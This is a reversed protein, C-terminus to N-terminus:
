LEKKLIFIKNCTYYFTDHVKRRSYIKDTLSINKYQLKRTKCFIFCNLILFIILLLASVMIASIKLSIPYDFVNVNTYTGLVEKIHLFQFPNWYHLINLPSLVSIESYLIFCLGCTGVSLIYVTLNNAAITCILSFIVAFVLYALIKM